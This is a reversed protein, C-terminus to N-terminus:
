IPKKKREWNSKRQSKRFSPSGEDTLHIVRPSLRVYSRNPQTHLDIAHYIIAGRKANKIIANELEDSPMPNYFYIVDYKDYDPFQIGDRCFIRDPGVCEGAIDAYTQNIELGYADFGLSQAIWVKSGMGCGVDLFRSSDVSIRQILRLKQVFKLISFSANPYCRDDSDAFVQGLAFELSYYLRFLVALDDVTAEGLQRLDLDANM